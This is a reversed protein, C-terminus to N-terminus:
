FDLGKESEVPPSSRHRSKRGVPDLGRQVPPDDADMGGEISYDEPGTSVFRAADDVKALFALRTSEFEKKFLEKKEAWEPSDWNVQPLPEVPLSTMKVLWFSLIPQQLGM